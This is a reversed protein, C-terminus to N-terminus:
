DWRYPTMNYYRVWEQASGDYLKVNRYGLVQTLVFWWSSAYGGVGCYVIIEKPDQKGIVGSVMGGLTKSDKYTWDEPNWMWPAPLCRANRIHGPKDAFPEVKVGFYVDADRADIILAKGLREHVYERSVFMSKRKGKYTEATPGVADKSITKNEKQWKTHGGDLIAVNRVGAYLLTDAVRTADALPYPPEGPKPASTVVVVLSDNKIGCNGIARFLAAEEPVELLLEDRIVIWDSVPVLFPANVAKPIHGDAYAEKARIDLIVLDKLQSNQQLWDTSVIPDIKRPSPPADKAFAQGALVLSAFLISAPLALFGRKM